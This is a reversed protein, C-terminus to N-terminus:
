VQVALVEEASVEDQSKKFFHFAIAGLGAIMSYKQAKKSLKKVPMFKTLHPYALLVAGAALLPSDEVTEMIGGLENAVLGHLHSKNPNNYVVGHMHSQHKHMAGIHHVGAYAGFRRMNMPNNYDLNSNSLYNLHGTKSHPM